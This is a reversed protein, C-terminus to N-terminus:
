LLELSKSFHLPFSRINAPCSFSCMFFHPFARVVLASSQVQKRTLAKWRHLYFASTDNVNQAVYCSIVMLIDAPHHALYDRCLCFIVAHHATWLWFLICLFWQSFPLGFMVALPWHTEQCYYFLFEEPHVSLMTLIGACSYTDKQKPYKNKKKLSYCIM